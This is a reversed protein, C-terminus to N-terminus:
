IFFRLVQMFALFCYADAILKFFTRIILLIDIVQYDNTINKIYFELGYVLFVYSFLIFSIQIKTSRLKNHFEEVSESTLKDKILKM